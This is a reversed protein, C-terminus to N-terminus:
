KTVTNKPETKAVSNRITGVKDEPVFVLGCYENKYIFGNPVRVIEYNTASDYIPDDGIKLTKLMAELDDGKNRIIKM